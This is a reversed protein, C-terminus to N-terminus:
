NRPPPGPPRPPNGPPPGEARPPNAPHDQPPGGERPPEGPRPPRRNPDPLQAMRALRERQRDDLLPALKLKMSDLVAGLEVRASAVASDYSRASEELIPRIRAEQEARPQIVEEVLSVFGPPTRLEAVRRARDRMLLGQGVMGLVVGLALTAVLIAVSKAEMKM